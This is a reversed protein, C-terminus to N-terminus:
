YGCKAFTADFGNINTLIFEIAEMLDEISDIEHALLRLQCGLQNFVWEIPGDSPNWPPQCIPFHGRAILQDYLNEDQHSNLNDWM